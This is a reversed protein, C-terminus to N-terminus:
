KSEWVKLVAIGKDIFEDFSRSKKWIKSLKNWLDEYIRYTQEPFAQIDSYVNNLVPTMAERFAETKGFGIEKRVKNFYFYFFQFHLLEHTFVNVLEQGGKDPIWIYSKKFNFPCRNPFTTIFLTIEKKCIPHNTLHVMRRFIAEGNKDFFNQIEKVKELTKEVRYKGRLFPILFDFAEKQKKDAIKDRTDQDIRKSWDVGHNVM